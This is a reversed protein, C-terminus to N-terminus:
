SRRVGVIHATRFLMPPRQAVVNICWSSGCRVPVRRVGRLPKACVVTFFPMELETANVEQAAHRAMQTAVPILRYRQETREGVERGAYLGRGGQWTAVMRKTQEIFATAPSGVAKACM